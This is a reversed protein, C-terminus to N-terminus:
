QPMLNKLLLLLDNPSEKMGNRMWEDIFGYISGAYWSSLYIEIPNTKEKINMANKMGTYIYYSLNAKHITLYFAKESWFHRLLSANIDPDGEQEFSKGWNKFLTNLYDLLIDEKSAYNRYFSARGVNATAVLETISIDDLTKSELLKLLARLLEQKTYEEKKM